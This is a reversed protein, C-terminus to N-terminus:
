VGFAIQDLTLLAQLARTQTYAAAEAAGHGVAHRSVTAGPGASPNFNAFTYADLYRAFAAPLLLTDPGGAKQEAARVAFALLGKLKAGKGTAARHAAALIGEIETLVIKLVAVPDGANYANVASRLIPAKPGFHPNAAWREFMRELRDPGFKALLSAEAEALSFGAEAASTLARFESGIIEAFPFWGAGVM